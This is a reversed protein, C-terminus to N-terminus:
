PVPVGQLQYSEYVHAAIKKTESEGPSALIEQLLQMQRRLLGEKDPVKQPSMFRLIPMLDTRWQYDVNTQMMEAAERMVRDFGEAKMLLKSVDRLGLWYKDILAQTETPLIDNEILMPASDDSKCEYDKKEIDRKLGKASMATIGKLPYDTAVPYARCVLPRDDYISCKKDKLAQCRGDPGPLAFIQARMQLYMKGLATEVAIVQGSNALHEWSEPKTLTTGERLGVALCDARFFEFSLFLPFCDAYDTWETTSIVLKYGDPFHCCKGCGTCEFNMRM